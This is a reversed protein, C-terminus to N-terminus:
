HYFGRGCERPHVHDMQKELHRKMLPQLALWNPVPAILRNFFAVKASIQQLFLHQLMQLGAAASPPALPPRPAPLPTPTELRATTAPFVLDLVPLPGEDSPPQSHDSYRCNLGLTCTGGMSCPGVAVQVEGGEDAGVEPVSLQQYCPRATKIFPHPIVLKGHLNIRDM